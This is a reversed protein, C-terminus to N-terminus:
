RLYGYRWLSTHSGRPQTLLLFLSVTVYLLSFPATAHGSVCVSRSLIVSCLEVSYISLLYGSDTTLKSFQAPLNLWGSSLRDSEWLTSPLKFVSLFWRRDKLCKLWTWQCLVRGCTPDLVEKMPIQLSTLTYQSAGSPKLVLTEIPASLAWQQSGKQGLCKAITPWVSMEQLLKIKLEYADVTMQLGAWESDCEGNASLLWTEKGNERLHLREWRRM